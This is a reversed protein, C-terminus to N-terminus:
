VSFSSGVIWREGYRIKFRESVLGDDNKRFRLRALLPEEICPAGVLIGDCRLSSNVSTALPVSETVGGRRM